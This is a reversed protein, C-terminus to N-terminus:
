GQQATHRCVAERSEGNIAYFTVEDLPCATFLLIIAILIWLAKM